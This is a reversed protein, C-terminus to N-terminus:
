LVCPCPACPNWIAACHKLFSTGQVSARRIRCSCVVTRRTYQLRTSYMHVAFQSSLVTCSEATSEVLVVSRVPVATSYVTSGDSDIFRYLRIRMRIFESRYVAIVIDCLREEEVAGKNRSLATALRTRLLSALLPAVSDRIGCIAYLQVCLRPAEEDVM